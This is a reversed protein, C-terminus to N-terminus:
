CDRIPFHHRIKAQKSEGCLTSWNHSCSSESLVFLQVMKQFYRSRKLMTEFIQLLEYRLLCPAPEEKNKKAFWFKLRSLFSTSIHLHIARTSWTFLENWRRGLLISRGLMTTIMVTFLIIIKVFCDDTSLYKAFM